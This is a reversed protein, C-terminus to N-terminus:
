YRQYHNKLTSFKKQNESKSTLFKVAFENAARESEYPTLNINPNNLVMFHGLEHPIFFWNFLSIFFEEANEGQWIKFLEMQEKSLEDWFPLILGKNPEDWKILFPATQIKVSPVYPPSTGMDKMFRDFDNIIIRVDSELQEKSDYPKFVDQGFSYKINSVLFAFVIFEIFLIKM